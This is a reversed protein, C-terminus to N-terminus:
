KDFCMQYAPVSKLEEASTVSIIATPRSSETRSSLDAPVVYTIDLIETHGQASPNNSAIISGTNYLTCKGIGISLDRIETEKEEFMKSEISSHDTDIKFGDQLAFEEIQSVYANVAETEQENQYQIGKSALIFVTLLTTVIGLRKLIDSKSFELDTHDTILKVGSERRHSGDTAVYWKSSPKIKEHGTHSTQSSDGEASFATKYEIPKSRSTRISM